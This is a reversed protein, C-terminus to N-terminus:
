QMRDPVAILVKAVVTEIKIKEIMVNKEKAVPLLAIIVELMKVEIM